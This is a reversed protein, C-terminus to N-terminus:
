RKKFKFEYFADKFFSDYQNSFVLKENKKNVNAPSMKITSHYSNNYSNM